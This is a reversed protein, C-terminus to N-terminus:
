PSGGSRTIPPLPSGLLSRVEDWHKLLAQKLQEPKAVRAVELLAQLFLELSAGLAHEEATGFDRFPGVEFYPDQSTRPRARAHFQGRFEEIELDLVCSLGAGFLRLTEPEDLLPTGGKWRLRAVPAVHETSAPQSMSREEKSM